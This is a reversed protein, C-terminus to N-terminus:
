HEGHLSKVNHDSGTRAQWTEFDVVDQRYSAHCTTCARLTNATARLVGPGDHARAAVSIDDACRHFDLGLETFGSAGTGMHQCMKQMEPSSEILAAGEAIQIWDERALGDTIREIAVLHEQMNQMQHWAMMPQLPVPVRPDMAHLEAFPACGEPTASTTAAHTHGEHDGASDQASSDGRCLLLTTTILGLATFRFLPNAKM